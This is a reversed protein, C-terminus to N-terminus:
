VIFDATKNNSKIQSIDPTENRRPFKDKNIVLMNSLNNAFIFNNRLM